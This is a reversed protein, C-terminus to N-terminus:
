GAISWPPENPAPPLPALDVYLGDTALKHVEVECGNPYMTDFMTLIPKINPYLTRALEVACQAVEGQVLESWNLWEEETLGRLMAEDYEYDGMISSVYEYVLYEKLPIENVHVTNGVLLLVCDLMYNVPIQPPTRVQIYSTLDAVSMVCMVPNPVVNNM